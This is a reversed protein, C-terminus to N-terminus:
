SMPAIYHSYLYYACTLADCKSTKISSCCSGFSGLRMKVKNLGKGIVSLELVKLNAGDVIEMNITLQLYFCPLKIRTQTPSSSVCKPDHILSAVLWLCKGM